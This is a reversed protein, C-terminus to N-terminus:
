QQTSPSGHNAEISNGGESDSSEESSSGTSAEPDLPLPPLSVYTQPCPLCPRPNNVRSCVLANPDMYGFQGYRAVSYCPMYAHHVQIFPRPMFAPRSRGRQMIRQFNEERLREGQACRLLEPREGRGVLPRAGPRREEEENERRRRKANADYTLWRARGMMLHNKIIDDWEAM